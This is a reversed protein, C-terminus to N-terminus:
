KNETVYSLGGSKLTFIKAIDTVNSLNSGAKSYYKNQKGM